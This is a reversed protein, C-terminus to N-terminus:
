DLVFPWYVNERTRPLRGTTASTHRWTKQHAENGAADLSAWRWDWMGSDRLAALDM